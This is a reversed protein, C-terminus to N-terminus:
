HYKKDKREDRVNGGNDLGFGKPLSVIKLESHGGQRIRDREIRPDYFERRKVDEGSYDEGGSDESYLEKGRGISTYFDSGINEKIDREKDLANDLPNYDEEWSDKKKDKDGGDLFENELSRELKSSGWSSEIRATVLGIDGVSIDGVEEIDEEEIIEEDEESDKEEEEIVDIEKIDKSDM